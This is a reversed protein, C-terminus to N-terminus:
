TSAVKAHPHMQDLELLHSLCYTMAGQKLKHNGFATSNDYERPEDCTSLSIVIGRSGKSKQWAPTTDHVWQTEDLNEHGNWIWPLDAM